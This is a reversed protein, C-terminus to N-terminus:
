IEPVAVPLEVLRGEPRDHRLQRREIGGGNLNMNASNNGNIAVTASKRTSIGGTPDGGVYAGGGGSLQL